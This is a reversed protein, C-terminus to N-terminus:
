HYISIYVGDINNFLKAKIVLVTNCFRCVMMCGSPYCFFIRRLVLISSRENMKIWNEWFREFFYFSIFSIYCSCLYADKREYRYVNCFNCMEAGNRTYLFQILIYKTEQEIFYSVSRSLKQFLFSLTRRIKGPFVM